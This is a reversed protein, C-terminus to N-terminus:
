ITTHSVTLPLMQKRYNCQECKSALHGNTRNLEWCPTLPNTTAKCSNKQGECDNFVWCPISPFFSQAPTQAQPNPQAIAEQQWRQDLRKLGWSIFVTIALPIILRLGLLLLLSFTVENDNM